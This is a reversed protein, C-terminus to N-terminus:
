EHITGGLGFEELTERLEREIVSEKASKPTTGGKPLKNDEEKNENEKNEKNEDEKKDEDGNVLKKIEEFFNKYKDVVDNLKKEFEEVANKVTKGSELKIVVSDVESKITNMLTESKEFSKMSKLAEEKKDSVEEQLYKEVESKYAEFSQKLDEKEKKAKALEEKLSKVKDLAMELSAQAKLYEEEKDSVDNKSNEEEEQPMKNEPTNESSTNIEEDSKKEPEKEPNEKNLVKDKEKDAMNEGEKTESELNVLNDFGLVELVAKVKETDMDKTIEEVGVSSISAEPVGPTDVFDIGKFESNFMTYYDKEKNPVEYKKPFYRMSVYNIIKEKVLELMDKGATTNLFKAKFKGQGDEIWGDVIKAATALNEDAPYHSSWMVVPLNKSKIQEIADNVFEETYKRKNRSIGNVTVFTGKLYWSKEGNNDTESFVEVAPLKFPEQLGRQLQDAVWTQKKDM